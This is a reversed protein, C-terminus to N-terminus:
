DAIRVRTQAGTTRNVLILIDGSATRFHLLLEGGAVSAAVLTGGEPRTVQLDAMAATAVPEPVAVPTSEEEVLLSDAAREGITYFILGLMAVIGLGLGIVLAKLGRYSPAADEHVAAHDPTVNKEDPMM